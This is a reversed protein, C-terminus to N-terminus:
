DVARDREMPFPVCSWPFGSRVADRSNERSTCCLRAAEGAFETYWIQGADHTSQTMKSPNAIDACPGSIAQAASPITCQRFGDTHALHQSYAKSSHHAARNSPSSIGIFSQEIGNPPRAATFDRCPSFQLGYRDQWERSVDASGFRAPLVQM